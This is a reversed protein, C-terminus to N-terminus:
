RLMPLVQEVLNHFRSKAESKRIRNYETEPIVNQAVMRATIADNIETEFGDWNEV